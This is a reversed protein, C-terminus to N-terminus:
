KGLRGAHALEELLDENAFLRNVAADEALLDARYGWEADREDRDASPDDEDDDTDLWNAVGPSAIVLREDAAARDQVPNDTGTTLGSLQFVFIGPQQAQDANEDEPHQLESGDISELGRTLIGRGLAGFGDGLGLGATGATGAFDLGRLDNSTFNVFLDTDYVGADADFVFVDDDAGSLGPVSFDGASTLYLDGDAVALGDIDEGGRQSLGVNADSGDLFMSFSGRTRSGLATPMFRIIDEDRFSLGPVGGNGVTSILLSGDDLLTVADVDEGSRTLGVDSADFYWYFSGATNEGLSTARFLIIDSDDVSGSRASFSLLIDTDNIMDFADIALGALGVDSGDFLISFNEGDFAVIDENQVLLGGASARSQLTFYLTPTSDGDDDNDAISVDVDAIPIGNYNLDGSTATHTITGSHDGEVDGDDVASVTVIQPTSWNQPTFTLQSKNTSLQGDPQVNVTVDATPASELVVSYTDTNGDESVSTTGNSQTVSVGPTSDNDTISARVSATSIGQYNTDNSTVAHTITGNHDGEVDGDDVAAVTITRPTSWNGPTFTVSTLNTSLQGDANTMTVIVDAAPAADLVITYTDTNGGEAVSTAGNSEVISVGYSDNDGIAVTVNDVSIADYDPDASAATHTLTGTHNGEVDGDDIASVTVTRPTNWNQPTFTVSAPSTSLQSGPAITITVDAAPASDLVISYSDTAGSESVNTSGNSQTITVGPTQQTQSVTLELQYLQVANNAGSIRAYYTGAASLALDNIAESGGLGTNDAAALITSGDPAVIQVSLDSFAGTAYASQSGNQPGENYTPGLPTLLVDLESGASVNFSYYDVDSDDDISVFDVDNAAVFTDPGDTGIEVTQGPNIAGLGTATTASDNGSGPENADGYGRHAGLIDDLQPGDFSLNIFPEMLFSANNSEVHALGLGHGAEHTVVNRLRLSNSATNTYFSDATDIVMDSTDPYFNYALTGSNGDIRHGGVRVDGRVGVVGSSFAFSAGDDNPEYVYTVGSVDSWRDFSAEIAEFWAEGQFDTDGPDHFIGYIGRFTGVLNSASAAEGAFGQIPVGDRVISWTVIIPSGIPGAGGTGDTATSQWRDALRFESIEMEDHEHHQFREVYDLPTDPAFLLHPDAIDASLVLRQELMEVAAFLTRHFQRPNARRLTSRRGPIDGFLGM